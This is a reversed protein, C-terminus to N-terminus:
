PSPPTSWKQHTKFIHDRQELLQAAISLAIEPPTNNGIPLGLPCVMPAYQSPTLGLKRLDRQIAGAKAKSGIVGIFPFHEADADHALLAKSLIPVDHAHGMTMSVIMTHTPLQDLAFHPDDLRLRTLAPHDDLKDIWEPRSDICYIQAQLTCLLPVLAQSVHGAGFVAICWTKQPLTVEFLLSVVGGCTMGIDTQLNHTELSIPQTGLTLLEQARQICFAEIKGGGVTGGYLGQGTVLMKAGLTQPASGIMDVLTVLVHPEQEQELKLIQAYLQRKSLACDCQLYQLDSALLVGM